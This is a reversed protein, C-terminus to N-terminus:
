KNRNNKELKIEVNSPSIFVQNMTFMPKTDYTLILSYQQIFRQTTWTQKRYRSLESLCTLIFKPSYKSIVISESQTQRSKYVAKELSMSLRYHLLCQNLLM